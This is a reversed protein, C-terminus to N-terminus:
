KYKIWRLIEQLTPRKGYMLIGVRHIRGGFWALLMTFGVSVAISLLIQSLPPMSVAIRMFMLTPTFLPFLSAAVATTSHPNQTIMFGMVFPIILMYIVPAAFQQAEQDTNVAAGVISFLISYMFYGIIFFIVFYLAIEPTLFTLLSDSISSSFRGVAAAALLVWIGVQTLGALGVGLIKGYFLHSSRTSSILVEIIRNNKEELIGRMLLQGYSMLVTFLVSMMFISLMYDMGSSSKTAGEKKVKFTDLQVTRTAENVIAPDIAKALLVQQSVITRVSSAIYENTSFDSISSAYFLVKRSKEVDAPILLFGDAKKDLIMRSYEAILDQESRDRVDARQFTLKNLKGKEDGFFDGRRATAPDTAGAPKSTGQQLKQFVFGSLDAVYVTKDAKSFRAILIPLFFMALTILPTLITSIIFSKKRVIERYEKKILTLLKM